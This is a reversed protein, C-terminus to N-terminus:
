EPRWQCAVPGPTRERIALTDRSPISQTSCNSPQPIRTPKAYCYIAHTIPTLRHRLEHGLMAIFQDKQEGSAVLGATMDAHATVDQILLLLQEARDAEGPIRRASLSMVRRGQPLLERTAEWDDLPQGSALLGRLRHDLDSTGSAMAWKTFSDAKSRKVPTVLNAAFASNM